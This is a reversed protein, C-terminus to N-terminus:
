KEQKGASHDKILDIFLDGYKELKVGGVGSVELFRERSDPKKRCMDRLAADAFIIYAPMKAEQALRTRLARLKAYLEEDLAENHLLPSQAAPSAEPEQPLMMRLPKPNAILERTKPATHVVPYEEGTLVLYGEAILYDMIFRVRRAPTDAMIGYTSLSGLGMRRIKETDSGRLIDTILVRGASQNAREVRYVCSVIKQAAITIDADEFGRKCNSCNGCYHPAAEGFYRLLRSRLCDAATAYFTMYKLLELNHKVLAEDAAEPDQNKILYTNIRVDQPSYLLICDAPEGDRGARGAEQYYSEMNKPMNYHIVYSVNSKDIGMGFANTAVMISTRDYIFDDQNQHRERDNLGAHYRSVTFSRDQLARCLEEVAKRTSCYIIGSRGRRKTLAELLASFKDHPTQVEFYLNERNFGTILLFPDQLELIAAIDARVKGTATATFAAAVPRSQMGAIFERIQLYSPRFDHGWQSVCHAEDVVVMSIRSLIEPPLGRKLREPAIYLMTYAGSSAGSMVEAYADPSLSSNLYAAPVAADALANVQDKMLSILPSIVVTIGPRLLAPIQYCLSKGAGTPMVALADRGALLAGIVAEQGPRFASYGFHTKLIGYIDGAGQERRDM